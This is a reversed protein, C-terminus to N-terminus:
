LKKPYELPINNGLFYFGGVERSSNFVSLHLADVHMKLAMDLVRFKIKAKSKTCLYNFLEDIKSNSNITVSFRNTHTDNSAALTQLGIM